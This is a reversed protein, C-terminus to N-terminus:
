LNSSSIVIVSVTFRTRRSPLSVSSRQLFNAILWSLTGRSLAQGLHSFQYGLTYTRSANSIPKYLSRMRCYYTRGGSPYHASNYFPFGVIAKTLSTFYQDRVQLHTYGPMIADREKDAREVMVSILNIMADQIQSAAKLLWLRM